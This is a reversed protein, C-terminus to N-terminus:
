EEINLQERWYKAWLSARKSSIIEVDSYLKDGTLQFAEKRTKGTYLTRNFSVGDPVIIFFKGKINDVIFIMDRFMTAGLLMNFKNKSIHMHVDIGMNHFVLDGLTFKPIRYKVCQVEKNSGLGYFSSSGVKIADPFMARFTEEGALWVPTDAGSDVLMKINMTKHKIVPRFVGKDLDFAITHM